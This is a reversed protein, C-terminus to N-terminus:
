CLLEQFNSRADSTHSLMKVLYADEMNPKVEEGIKKDTILKVSYGSNAENISIVYYKSQIDSLEECKIEVVRVKGLAEDMLHQREGCFIINGQDIIAINKCTHEIDGVIHTSLVVIRDKAFESLLTRFRVREDPDLGATPEDVILVKPDKLLAIAIGLRRKMGGSLTKFKKRKHKILNVKVLLENIIEKRKVVSKIGVLLAMYDMAELVSMYPYFSFEQPLYSVCERIKTRQSIPIGNITIEGTDAPLLAMLIKMLTTKGAGNPGLIGFMGQPITLDIENLAVINKYKKGVQNLRIEM